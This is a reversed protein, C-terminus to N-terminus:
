RLEKIIEFGIFGLLAESRSDFIVSVHHYIDELTNMPQEFKPTLLYALLLTGYFSKIFFDGTFWFAVLLSKSTPNSSRYYADASLNIYTILMSFIVFLILMNLPPTYTEHCTNM